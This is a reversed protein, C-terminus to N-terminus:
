ISFRQFSHSHSFGRTDCAQRQPRSPDRWVSVQLQGGLHALLAAILNAAVSVASERKWCGRHSAVSEFVLPEDYLSSRLATRQVRDSAVHTCVSVQCVPAVWFGKPLTHEVAASTAVRKVHIDHWAIGVWSLGSEDAVSHTM